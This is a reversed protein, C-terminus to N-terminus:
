ILYLKSQKASAANFLPKNMDLVYPFITCLLLKQRTKFNIKVYEHIKLVM